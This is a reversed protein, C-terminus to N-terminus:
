TLFLVQFNILSGQIFHADEWPTCRATPPRRTPRPREARPQRPAEGRVRRDHNDLEVMIREIHENVLKRHTTVFTRENVAGRAAMDM